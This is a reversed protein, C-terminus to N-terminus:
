ARHRLVGVGSRSLRHRRGAVLGFTLYSLNRYPVHFTQTLVLV